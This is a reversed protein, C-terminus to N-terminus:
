EGTRGFKYEKSPLCMGKRPLAHTIYHGHILSVCLCIIEMDKKEFLKFNIKHLFLSPKMFLLTHKHIRFVWYDAYIDLM